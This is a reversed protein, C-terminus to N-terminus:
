LFFELKARTSQRRIAFNALGPKKQFHLSNESIFRLFYRGAEPSKTRMSLPKNRAKPKIEAGRRNQWKNRCNKQSRKGGERVPDIRFFEEFFEARLGGALEVTKEDRM